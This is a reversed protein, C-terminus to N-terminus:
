KYPKGEHYPTSLIDYEVDDNWVKKGKLDRDVTRAVTEGRWQQSKTLYYNIPQNPYNEAIRAQLWERSLLVIRLIANSQTSDGM